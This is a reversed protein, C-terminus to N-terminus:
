GDRRSVDHPNSDRRQLVCANFGKFGQQLNTFFASFGTNSILLNDLDSPSHPARLLYNNPNNIILSM